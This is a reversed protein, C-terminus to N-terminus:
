VHAAESKRRNLIESSCRAGIYPLSELRGTVFSELKTLIIPSRKAPVPSDRRKGPVPFDGCGAPQFAQGVFQKKSIALTEFM